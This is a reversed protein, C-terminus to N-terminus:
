LIHRFPLWCHGLWYRLCAAGAALRADRPGTLGTGLVCHPGQDAPRAIIRRSLAQQIRWAADGLGVALVETSVFDIRRQHQLPGEFFGIAIIFHNDELVNAEFAMALMVHR